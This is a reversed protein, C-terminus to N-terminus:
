SVTFSRSSTRPPTGCDAVPAPLLRSSPLATTKHGAASPAKGGGGKALPAGESAALFELPFTLLHSQQESWVGCTCKNFAPSNLCVETFELAVGGRMCKLNCQSCWDSSLTDWDTISFPGPPSSPPRCLSSFSFPFFIDQPFSLSSSPVPFLFELLWPPFHLTHVRLAYFSTTAAYM